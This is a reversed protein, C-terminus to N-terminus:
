LGISLATAGFVTLMETVQHVIAKMVTMWGLIFFHNLVRLEATLVTRTRRFECLVQACWNLELGVIM